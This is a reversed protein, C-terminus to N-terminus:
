FSLHSIRIKAFHIVRITTFLGTASRILKETVCPYVSSKQVEWSSCTALDYYLLLFSRIFCHSVFCINIPRQPPTAIQSFCLCRKRGVLIRISPICIPSLLSCKNMKHIMSFYVSRDLAHPKYNNLIENHM